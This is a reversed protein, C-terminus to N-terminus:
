SRESILRCFSRFQVLFNFHSHSIKHPNRLRLRSNKRLHYCGMPRIGNSGILIITSTPIGIKFCTPETLGLWIFRGHDSRSFPTSHPSQPLRYPLSVFPPSPPMVVANTVHDTQSDGYRFCGKFTNYACGLEQLDRLLQRRRMTPLSYCLSNRWLLAAVETHCLFSKESM